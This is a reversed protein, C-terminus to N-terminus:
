RSAAVAYAADIDLQGTVAATILAQRHERLLDIQKSLRRNVENIVRTGTSAERVLTRQRELPLVPIPLDLVKMSSTSALNTIRSGTREFYARAHATQTLLALYDGDLRAPDPRVAFVHNQHLCDPIQNRWVTGRGLKDLDGGETMLVDGPQLTSRDCLARPVTIEIVTDLALKGHLVNAVRLYPRTVVDGAMGRSSDVTLGTQVSALRGLRTFRCGLPVLVTSLLAFSREDMLERMRRKKEILADIRATEGDLFDAIETQTHDDPVHVSIEALDEANLHPQAARTKALDIQQMADDGLLAWAIYRPNAGTPTVRLDYGPASGAWEQTIM